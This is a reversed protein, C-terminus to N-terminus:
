SQDGDDRGRAMDVMIAQQTELITLLRDTHDARDLRKSIADLGQSISRQATEIALLDGELGTISSAINALEQGAQAVADSVQKETARLRADIRLVWEGLKDLQAEIPITPMTMEEAGAIEVNAEPEKKAVPKGGPAVYEGMGVRELLGAKVARGLHGGITSNAIGYEDMIQDRTWGDLILEAVRQYTLGTKRGGRVEAMDEVEPKQSKDVRRLKGSGDTALFRGCSDERGVPSRWEGCMGYTPSYYACDNCTVTIATAM